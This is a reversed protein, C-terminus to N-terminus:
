FESELGTSIVCFEDDDLAWADNVSAEFDQFSTSGTNKIKSTTKIDKKPSPRSNPHLVHGILTVHMLLYVFRGPVTKSNKKWFSSKDNETFDM